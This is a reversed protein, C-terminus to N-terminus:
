HIGKGWEEFFWEDEIDELLTDKRIEETFDFAFDKNKLYKLFEAHGYVSFRLSPLFDKFTFYGANVYDLNLDSVYIYSFDQFRYTELWEYIDLVKEHNLADFQENALRILDENILGKYLYDMKFLTDILKDFASMGHGNESMNARAWNYKEVWACFDDLFWFVIQGNDIELLMNEKEDLLRLYISDPKFSIMEDLPIRMEYIHFDSSKQEETLDSPMCYDLKFFGDKTPEIDFAFGLTSSYFLVVHKPFVEAGDEHFCSKCKSERVQINNVGNEKSVWKFFDGLHIIVVSKEGQFHAVEDDMFKEATDIDFSAIAQILAQRPNTM